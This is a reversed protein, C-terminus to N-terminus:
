YMYRISPKTTNGHWTSKQADQACLNQTPNRVLDKSFAKDRQERIERIHQCLLYRLMKPKQVWINKFDFAQDDWM